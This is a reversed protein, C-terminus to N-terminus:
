SHVAASDAAAAAAFSEFSTRGVVAVVVFDAVQSNVLFLAGLTRM